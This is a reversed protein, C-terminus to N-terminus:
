VHRRAHSLLWCRKLDINGQAAESYHEIKGFTYLPKTLTFQLVTWDSLGHISGGDTRPTTGSTAGGEYFGGSVAPALALFLNANLTFGKNGQAEELMARAHEVLQEREKIRPDAALSMEVAQQLNVTQAQAFAAASLAVGLLLRNVKAILMM